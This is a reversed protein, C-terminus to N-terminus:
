GEVQSKLKFHRDGSNSLGGERSNPTESSQLKWFM